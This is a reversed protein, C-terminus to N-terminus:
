TCVHVFIIWFINKRFSNKKWLLTHRIFLEVGSIFLYNGFSSVNKKLKFLFYKQCPENNVNAIMKRIDDCDPQLAHVLWRM